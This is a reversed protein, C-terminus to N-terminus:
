EPTRMLWPSFRIPLGMAQMGNNSQCREKSMSYQVVWPNVYKQEIM